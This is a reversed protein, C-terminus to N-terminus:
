ASTQKQKRLDLMLMAGLEFITDVREMRYLEKSIWCKVKTELREFPRYNHLMWKFARELAPAIGAHTFGNRELFGLMLVAYSTETMNSVGDTSWGGDPEQAVLVADLAHRLEHEHQSGTLAIASHLTTYLWSRNWKDVSWRGDPEQRELLYRQYPAVDKKLLMLAHICRATLTPSSHMEGPYAVFHDEKQFRELIAPDVEMNFAHMLAIVASTDDGDHLYFDSMGIGKPGLARTLDKMVPAVVSELQPHKLVDAVLLGYLAFCQEFYNHPAGVPVLGPIGTETALSTKRVYERGREACKQLAAQEPSGEQLRACKAEAAKVWAATASPSHGISGAGDMLVPNPETGFTEWVHFWPVGPIVPLTAIIKRKREGLEILKAYPRRPFEVDTPGLADLLSPLIIEGAVPLDDKNMKAWNTAQKRLFHLGANIADKTAQRRGHQQLVLIAALTPIDRHLPMVPDGWGGDGYQRSLLWDVVPWPTEGQPLFRLVQSTDYISPSMLGGNKGTVALLSHLEAVLVDQIRKM